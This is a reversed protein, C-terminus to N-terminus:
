RRIHSSYRRILEERSIIAVQTPKYKERLQQWEPNDSAIGSAISFSTATVSSRRGDDAIDLVTFGFRRGLRALHSMGSFAQLITATADLRQTEDALIGLSAKMDTVLSRTFSLLNGDRNLRTINRYYDIIGIPTNPIVIEGDDLELARRSSDPWQVYARQGVTVDMHNGIRYVRSTPQGSPVAPGVPPLPRDIAVVVERLAREQEPQPVYRQMFRNLDMLYRMYTLLEAVNEPSHLYELIQRESSLELDREISRQPTIEHRFIPEREM